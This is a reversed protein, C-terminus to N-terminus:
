HVLNVRAAGVTVDDTPRLAFYVAAGGAALATGGLIYPWATSWFGGGKEKHADASPTEDHYARSPASLAAIPAPPPSPTPAPPAPAVHVRKEISGLQNNHSDRAEVVILISADPLTLRSPVDFHLHANVPRAQAWAHATLTDRAELSVSDVLTNRAPAVSVDVGFSAGSDVEDAVEAAITLSGFHAQERRAREALAIVKKGAEPPVKFGPDLMATNRFVTLAAQTKHAMTLACGIRTYADVVDAKQLGGATIADLYLGPAVDFDGNSWADRARQLAASKQPRATTDGSQAYVSEGWTAM